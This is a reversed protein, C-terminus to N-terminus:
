AATKEHAAEASPVPPAFVPELVAEEVDIIAEKAELKMQRARAKAQKLTRENRVLIGLVYGSALAWGGGVVCAVVWPQVIPEPVIEAM